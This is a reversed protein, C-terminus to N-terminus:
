REVALLNVMSRSTKQAIMQGKQDTSAWFRHSAASKGFVKFPTAKLVWWTAAGVLVLTLGVTALLEM